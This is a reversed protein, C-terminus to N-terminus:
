ASPKKVEVGLDPAYEKMLAGAIQLAAGPKKLVDLLAAKDAPVVTQVCLNHSPQVKNDPMFGNIYHNYDEIGVEFHIDAGAVALVIHEKSM